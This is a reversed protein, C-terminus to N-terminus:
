PQPVDEPNLRTPLLADIDEESRAAPLETFLHRLYRYPEHGNAKATEILSYLNASANAGAPTDAFLWNRRGIVFPRIARECSNNDIQLRGDDLYGILRPWQNHLYTLAKGTLTSPPVEPLAQQLWAHLEELIPRAKIQRQAHRADPDLNKLAKEVGYLRAILDLAQKAKGPKLQKGQGKHAEDFKRRAHAFCGILRIAPSKAVVAGYVEFGDCQLYGRYGALLATVPDQGRSPHYHFLIVPRQPPGGRQVWMYSQSSPDRGDEKLVQIRTEDMQVIDYALLERRLREILPAIAEGLQIMWRASSARPIDVGARQLIQEQRALPLADQYKAVAIHALLGPAANSKPIPQPPLAAIKITEECAKCAYKIRVHQLVRVQAPIVDLQESTEEGIRTLTCGCPCTKETATLDHEIRERPLYDPLPQRKGRQRHHAAVTIDTEPAQDAAAESAAAAAEAENFLGLQAPGPRKESSRGFRKILALNLAERLRALEAEYHRERAAQTLVLQKLAAVDDPLDAASLTRTPM